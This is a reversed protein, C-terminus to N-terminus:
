ERGEMGSVQHGSPQRGAGAVRVALDRCKAAERGAAREDGALMARLADTCLQWHCPKPLNIFLNAMPSAIGARLPNCVGPHSLKPAIMGSQGLSEHGGACCGCRSPIFCSMCHAQMALQRVGEAQTEHPMSASPIRQGPM